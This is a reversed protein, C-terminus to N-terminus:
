LPKFTAGGDIYITEGTIYNAADSILYAALLGVERPDGVRGLPVNKKALAQRQNM